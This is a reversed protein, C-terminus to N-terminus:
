SPSPFAAFDLVAREKCCRAECQRSNNRSLGPEAYDLTYVCLSFFPFMILRNGSQTSRGGALCSNTAAGGPRWARAACSAGACPTACPRRDSSYRRSCSTRTAGRQIAPLDYAIQQVKKTLPAAALDFTEGGATLSAAEGDEMYAVDRTHAVLAASSSRLTFPWISYRNLCDTLPRGPFATSGVGPSSPPRPGCCGM